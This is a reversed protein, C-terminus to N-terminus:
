RGGAHGGGGGHFGGGGFGGGHFSGGSFGNSARLGGGRYGGGGPFVGHVPGGRPAGVGGHGHFRDHGYFGGGYYGGYFGGWPGYFGWGFPSYFPNLGIYTYDWAYPDWYWGPAFAEAGAYEPAIQDNDEALYESRLSSWNYLPDENAKANFKEAKEKALPKGDTGEALAFEHDNKLVKYKGANVEVAAKGNFVKVTAPNANFEYYGNQVLQTAVGSDIVQLDNQKFIEDVEVGAHGHELEVQTLTIDPSIMKVASDDGLRLFVGPTLLVEARGQQTTLEDGANLTAAGVDHSNLQRGDLYAAGEIYNVAGPRAPIAGFASASIAGAALLVILKVRTLM